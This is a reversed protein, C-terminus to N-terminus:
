GDIHVEQEDYHKAIENYMETLAGWTVSAGAIKDFDVDSVPDSLIEAIKEERTYMEGINPTEQHSYYAIGIIEDTYPDVAVLSFIDGNKGGVKTDYIVAYLKGDKSVEYISSILDYDAEQYYNDPLDLNVVFGDETSFLISANEQISDKRNQEIIPYVQSYGFYAIATVLMGLVALYGAFYLPKKMKKWLKKVNM